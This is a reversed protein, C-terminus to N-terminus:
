AQAPASAPDPAPDILEAVADMAPLTFAFRMGGGDRPGASMTGGQIEVLQRCVSLGLGLGRTSTRTSPSRFHPEFIRDLEEPPIGPGDDLVAIEVFEGARSVVVRIPEDRRGYKMANTLLNWLVQDVWTENAEVIPLGPELEIVVPHEPHQRRFAAETREVLRAPVQPEVTPDAEAAAVQSLVLMNEPMRQLQRASTEIDQLGERVVDPLARDRRGLAIANGIILTLPTRLEHSVLGLFEDRRQLDRQLGLETRKELDVDAAAFFWRVGALGAGEVFTARHWRYGDPADPDALRIDVSVSGDSPGGPRPLLSRDDPHVMELFDATARDSLLRNAFTTQLEGDLTGAAVPLTDAFQRLFAERRRLAETERRGAATARDLRRAIIAIAVAVILGLLGLALLESAFGSRVGALAVAPDRLIVARWASDGIRAHGALWSGSGDPAPVDERAGGGATAALFAPDAPVPLLITGRDVVVQGSGDVIVAESLGTGIRALGGDPLDLRITGALISVTTGTGDRVPVAFTLLPDGSRRGVIADGYAPADMALVAQVYDRDSLDIPPEDLPFGSLLIMVGDTGILSLGGSFSSGADVLREFYWKIEASTGTQILPMQAITELNEFRERFFQDVRAAVGEADHAAVDYVIREDREARQLALVVGTVLLLATLTGAVATLVLGPRGEILRPRRPGRGRPTEDDLPPRATV